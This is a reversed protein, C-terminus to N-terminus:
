RASRETAIQAMADALAARHCREFDATVAARAMRYNPHFRPSGGCAQRAAADLRADLERADSARALDLDSLPVAVKASHTPTEDAFAPAGSLLALAAATALARHILM